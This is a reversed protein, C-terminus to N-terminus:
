INRASRTRSVFLCSVPRVYPPNMLSMRGPLSNGIRVRRADMLSLMRQLFEYGTRGPRLQNSSLHQQFQAAMRALFLKLM